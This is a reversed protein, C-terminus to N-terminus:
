LSSDIHRYQMSGTDMTIGLVRHTMAWEIALDLRARATSIREEVIDFDAETAEVFYTLEYLDEQAEQKAQTLNDVYNRNTNM